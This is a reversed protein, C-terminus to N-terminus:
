ITEVTYINGCGSSWGLKPREAFGAPSLSINLLFVRGRENFAAPRRKEIIDAKLAQKNVKGTPTLPIEDVFEIFEPLQLVSTQALHTIEYQRYRAIM